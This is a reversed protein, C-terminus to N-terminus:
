AKRWCRLRRPACDWRGGKRPSYVRHCFPGSDQASGVPTKNEKMTEQGCGDNTDYMTTTYDWACRTIVARAEREQTRQWIRSGSGEEVPSTAPANECGKSDAESRGLMGCASREAHSATSAFPSTTVM